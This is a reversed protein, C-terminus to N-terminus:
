PGPRRTFSRARGPSGKGAGAVGVPGTAQSRHFGGVGPLGAFSRLSFVSWLKSLEDLTFASPTFKVLDIDSALDAADLYGGKIGDRILQRTLVPQTHLARVVSGMVRQPKLESENGYFSLVYHLDLAARPRQVVASDSDRTPLDTNRGATNPTVQYLFVNVGTDPLSGGPTPRVATAVAGTVDESVAAHLVQRLVETVTAIALFNSV